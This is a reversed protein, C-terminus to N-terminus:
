KHLLGLVDCARVLPRGDRLSVFTIDLADGAARIDEVGFSKTIWMIVRNVRETILFTVSSKPRQISSRDTVHMFM